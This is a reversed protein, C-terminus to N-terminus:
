ATQLGEKTEYSFLKFSKRKTLFTITMFFLSSKWPQHCTLTGNKGFRRLSRKNRNEFIDVKPLSNSFKRKLLMPVAPLYFM